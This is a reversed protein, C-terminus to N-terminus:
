RDSASCSSTVEILEQSDNLAEMQTKNEMYSSYSYIKMLMDSLAAILVFDFQALSLFFKFVSSFHVYAFYTEMVLLCITKSYPLTRCKPDSLTHNLWPVFSDHGFSKVLTDVCCYLALLLWEETTDIQITM